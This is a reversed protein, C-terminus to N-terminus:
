RKVPNLDWSDSELQKSKALYKRERHRFRHPGGQNGRREDGADLSDVFGTPFLEKM